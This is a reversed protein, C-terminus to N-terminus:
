VTWNLQTFFICLFSFHINESLACTEWRTQWNQQTGHSSAMTTDAHLSLFSHSERLSSRLERHSLHSSLVTRLGVNSGTLVTCNVWNKRWTHTVFYFRETYSLTYVASLLCCLMYQTYFYKCQYLVSHDADGHCSWGKSKHCTLTHLRPCWGLFWVPYTSNHLDQRYGYAICLPLVTGAM